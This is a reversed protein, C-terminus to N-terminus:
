KEIHERAKNYKEGDLRYQWIMWDRRIEQDNEIQEVIPLGLDKRNENHQFLKITTLDTETLTDNYSWLEQLSDPLHPLSTLKNNYCGLEQLSDPLHPLSTLKNNYCWLKQLSNPLSPLCTLNNDSCWLEQLGDPLSPLCTLNNDSCWLERLDDPLPPLCTLNNDSCILHTVGTLDIGDLTTLNKNSLDLTTMEINQVVFHFYNDILTFLEFILFWTMMITMM